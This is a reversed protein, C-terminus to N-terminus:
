ASLVSQLFRKEFSATEGQSHLHARLRERLVPTHTLTEESAKGRDPIRGDSVNERTLTEKLARRDIANENGWGLNLLTQCFAWCKPYGKEPPEVDKRGRQRLSLFRENRPGFLFCGGSDYQTTKNQLSDQQYAARYGVTGGEWAGQREFM